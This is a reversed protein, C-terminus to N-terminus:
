TILVFDGNDNGIEEVLESWEVRGINELARINQLIQHLEQSSRYHIQAVMNIEPSGIRLSASMINESNEQIINKATSRPDGKDIGILLDAIRWGLQGLDLSYTKNLISRELATRRRQVTSLPVDIKKAIRESTAYPDSVLENVINKNIRDLLIRSNNHLVFKGESTQQANNSLSSHKRKNTALKTDYKPSSRSRKKVRSLM